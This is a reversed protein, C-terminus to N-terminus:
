YPRGDKHTFKWGGDEMNAVLDDEPYSATDIKSRDGVELYLVVQSTKNILKHAEHGPTFGACDGPSLNEESTETVLTPHGELVYIFEEQDTHKHLLASEAGPNLLTLNVGFKTIGFVDGLQRKVRGQMREAFPSPYVSPRSRPAVELASVKKM